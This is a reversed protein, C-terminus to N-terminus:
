VDQVLQYAMSNKLNSIHAVSEVGEDTELWVKFGKIVKVTYIKETYTNHFKQGVKIKPPQFTAPM